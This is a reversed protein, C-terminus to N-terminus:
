RGPMPMREFRLSQRDDTEVGAVGLRGQVHLHVLGVLVISMSQGLDDLSAPVAFDTDFTEFTVRDSRHQPRAGLEDGHANLHAVLDSSHQFGEADDEPSTVSQREFCQDAFRTRWTSTAHAVRYAGQKRDLGAQLLLNEAEISLQRAIGPSARCAPPQHRNRSDPQQRRDGEDGRDIIRHPECLRAANTGIEAQRGPAILRALGVV